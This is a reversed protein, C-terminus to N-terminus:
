QAPKKLAAPVKGSTPRISIKGAPMTATPAGQGGPANPMMTINPSGQGGPMGGPAGPMGGMVSMPSHEKQYKALWDREAKALDPRKLQAYKVMLDQHLSQDDWALTSAKQYQEVAKDADNNKQYLNGLTVRMQPDDRAALAKAYADAAQPMQRLGTYAQALGAYIQGAESSSPKGKLAEQYANVAAQYAAQAALPDGMKKGADALARDGRLSPDKVVIKNNPDSQLSTLFETYKQQGQQQKYQAIYKAKNADFDKPLNSKTADLKIIFYGYKPSVVLDPTVEGPKLSFAATKFEPVYNTNQDIWGDDGGNGKPHPPNKNGPDESYTNALAAFDAGPAKAKALIQQAQAKAQVDSRTKNGILIHRTHYQTYSNRVDQESAPIGNAVAAQLKGVVQNAPDGLLVMQRMTDDPLRDELSSSGAKAFAADIDTISAKDPLGLTKRVGSQDVLALRQKQIEDQSVNLNRRKAEALQEKAQILQDLALSDIMAMQSPPLSRGMASLQSRFGNLRDDMEQRSIPEGNVTAIVDDGSQAQAQNGGRGGILNTGLGAFATVVMAVTVFGLIWKASHHFKERM